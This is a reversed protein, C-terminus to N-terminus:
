FRINLNCLPENPFLDLNYKTVTQFADYGELDSCHPTQQLSALSGFTANGYAQTLSLNFGMLTNNNARVIGKVPDGDDIKSDIQYAQSPSMGSAVTQSWVGANTVLAGLYWYNTGANSFFDDYGISVGCQGGAAAAWYSSSIKSVPFLGPLDADTLGSPIDDTATTFNGKIMGASSLDRWLLVGESGLVSTVGGAVTVEILGNGHTVCMTPEAMARTTPQMGFSTAQQTNLDGPLVNYKSRFTNVAATYERNESIVARVRAAEILDRGVLVGGVILGIIVLVISLEILTFAQKKM